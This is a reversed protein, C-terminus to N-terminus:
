SRTGQPQSLAAGAALLQKYDSSRAWSDLERARIVPLPHSLSRTLQRLTQQGMWTAASRTVARTVARTLLMLVQSFSTM